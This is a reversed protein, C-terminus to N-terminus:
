TREDCGNEKGNIQIRHVVPGWGGGEARLVWAQQLLRYSVPFCYVPCCANDYMCVTQRLGLQYGLVAARGDVREVLAM